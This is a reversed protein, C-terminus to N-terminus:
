RNCGNWKIANQVEQMHLCIIENVQELLCLVVKDLILQWFQTLKKILIASYFIIYHNSFSM